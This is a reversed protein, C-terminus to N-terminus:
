KAEPTKAGKPSKAGKPTVPEGESCSAAEQGSRSFANRLSQGMKKMGAMGKSAVKRAMETSTRALQKPIDNVVVTAIKKALAKVICAVVEPPALDERNDFIDRQIDDFVLKGIGPHFSLTGIVPM